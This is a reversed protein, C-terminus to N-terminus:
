HRANCQYCYFGEPVSRPCRPKAAKQRAKVKQIKQLIDGKEVVPTEPTVFHAREPPSGAAENLASKVWSNFKMDGAANQWRAKEEPTCRVTFTTSKM